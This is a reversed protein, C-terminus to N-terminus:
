SAPTMSTGRIQRLIETDRLKIRRRGLEIAGQREFEKLLRSIVERVTGLEGAIQEHTLALYGPKGPALGRLLFDALRVDMKRFNIEEMLTLVHILRAAMMEFVFRRLPESKALWERFVAAPYIVAEVATETVAAALTKEGTFVSLMNVVCGEGSQVHYLTIERGSSGTKFVRMLGTGVVALHSCRDGEQFYCTGSPVSVYTGAQALEERLRRETDGYFRFKRLIAHKEVGKRGLGTIQHYADAM